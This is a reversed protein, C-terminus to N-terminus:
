RAVMGHFSTQGDIRGDTQRDTVRRYETKIALRITLSKKWRRTAGGNLNKWVLRSPFIEVPVGLPPTFHLPIHFFWSKRGIDRKIKWVICSLVMTVISPSYSVADLSEIRIPFRVWAKSHYWHLPRLPAYFPSHNVSCICRPPLSSALVGNSLTWYAVASQGMTYLTNCIIYLTTKHM